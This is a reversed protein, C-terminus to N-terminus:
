SGMRQRMMTEDRELKDMARQLSDAFCARHEMAREISGLQQLTANGCVDRAAHRIRAYATVQGEETSLNVDSLDVRVSPATGTEVNGTHVSGKIVANASLPAALALVCLGSLITKNLTM